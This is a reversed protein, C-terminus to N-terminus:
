TKEGLVFIYGRFSSIIKLILIYLIHIPLNKRPKLNLKESSVFRSELVRFGARQILSTIEEITYVRIHNMKDTIHVLNSDDDPFPESINKGRVLHEINRLSAINPTTLLILGKPKLVRKIELLAKLPSLRMHEIVESFIVIDFSENPVPCSKKSLEGQILPIQHRHLLKCYANINEEVEMGTIDFGWIEKLIIDHFGYAIGIDLIKKNKEREAICKVIERFRLNDRNLYRLISEATVLEDHCAYVSEKWEEKIERIIQKAIDDIKFMESM